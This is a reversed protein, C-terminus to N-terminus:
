PLNKLNMLGGLGLEEAAGHNTACCHCGWGFRPDRSCCGDTETSGGALSFNCWNCVAGTSLHGIPSERIRRKCLVLRPMPFTKLGKNWIQELCIKGVVIRWSYILWGDEVKSNLLAELAPAQDQSKKATFVLAISHETSGRKKLMQLACCRGNASAFRTGPAAAQSGLAGLM